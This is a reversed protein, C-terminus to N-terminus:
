LKSNDSGNLQTTNKKRPWPRMGRINFEQADIREFSISGDFTARNFRAVGGVKTRFFDVDFSSELYGPEQSSSAPQNTSAFKTSNFHADRADFDNDINNSSCIFQRKLDCDQFSVSHSVKNSDFCLRDFFQSGKYYIGKAEGYNWHTPGCFFAKVLVDEGVKLNDFNAVATSHFSTNKMLLFKGFSGNIFSAPGFFNADDLCVDSGVQLRPFDASGLFRSGIMELDGGISADKFTVSSNFKTYKFDASGEVKLGDFSAPEEFTCLHCSLGERFQTNTLFVNGKFVCAVFSIKSWVDLDTLRVDGEVTIGSIRIQPLASKESLSLDKDKILESV